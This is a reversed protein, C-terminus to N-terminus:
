RVRTGWNTLEDRYKSPPIWESSFWVTSGTTVTTSYDGWRCAPGYGFLDPYCTFGDEPATGSGYMYITGLASPGPTFTTYATSPYYSAGAVTLGFTVKGDNTVAVSPFWDNQNATAFDQQAVSM